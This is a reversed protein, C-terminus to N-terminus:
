QILGDLTSILRNAYAEKTCDKAKILANRSLFPLTQEKLVYDIADVISDSSGFDLIYGDKKHEVLSGTNETAIVPLGHVFAEYTVTASGECLSPLLFIDAQEYYQQVFQRPIHGKYDIYRTLEKLVDINRTGINGLLTFEAKGQLKKAAEVIYQTGKRIGAGITLVKLPRIRDFPTRQNVHNGHFSFGYPVLKLKDTNSTFQSVSNLVFPSPCLIMDALGIEELERERFQKFEPCELYENQNSNNWEPYKDYEKSVIAQEIAFPAICQELIVKKGKDKAKYIIEKAATNFVYVADTNAWDIANAVKSTFLANYKNYVGYQERLNKSKLSERKYNFGLFPFHVVKNDALFPSKRSELKRLQNISSKSTLLKIWGKNYIDTYFSSLIGQNALIEPVAYHMRAGLQVVSINM